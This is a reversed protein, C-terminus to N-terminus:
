GPQVDLAGTAVRGASWVALEYNASAFLLDIKLAHKLLAIAEDGRERRLHAKALAYLVTPSGPHSEKSLRYSFRRAKM